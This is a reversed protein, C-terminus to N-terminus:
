DNRKNGVYEKRGVPIAIFPNREKPPEVIPAQPEREAPGKANSLLEHITSRDM